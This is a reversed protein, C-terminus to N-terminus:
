LKRWAEYEKLGNYAAQVRHFLTDPLAARELLLGHDTLRSRCGMYAGDLAVAADFSEGAVARVIQACASSLAPAIYPKFGTDRVALNAAVAAESLRRSLADDYAGGTANAIVLGDGHPGYGRGASLFDPIGESRAAYDARALMVGLGLGIIQEPRLGAFDPVGNEDTNSMCFLERCLLDVPDSIQFFLGEFHTERAQRAYASLIIRNKELQYMRVDGATGLPPVGASATFAFVDCDFLSEPSLIEIRPRHGLVPLIQGAEMEMRRCRMPDPDYIGIVDFATGVLTLGTLLMAGVDGLGAMHLRLGTRGPTFRRPKSLARPYAANVCYLGHASLHELLQPDCAPEDHLRLREAGRDGLDSLRAAAFSAESEAPERSVLAVLPSFPADLTVFGKPVRGGLLAYCVDDRACYRM